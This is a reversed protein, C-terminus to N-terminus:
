IYVCVHVRILFKFINIRNSEDIWKELSNKERKNDKM